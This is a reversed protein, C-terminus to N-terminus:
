YVSAGSIEVEKCDINCLLGKKIKDGPKISQSIIVGSGTVKYKLGLKALIKIGDRLNYNTLDPMQTTKIENLNESLTKIDSIKDGSNKHDGAFVVKLKSNNLPEVNSDHYIQPDTNVIRQAINKFIPAAVSGGYRGKEPSNVLVLCIVKPNEAPFFGIFSSNYDTKSYSGNILKQSTGTKGGVSVFDLKANVGTGNEVVGTLIKRMRESTASSIVTRIEKPSNEMVVTGDHRVERKIIEPQFLKGGNIIASYATILQIPTVAVEYGYSMFAKTIQTWDKPNKLTGRVEGPLNVSTYNGFGFARVYKYFLDNDIRQSLKAMGINSSEEIVGRATLWGHEHTDRITVNKFKYKGNEVFVKDSENVLGQDLLVSMSIGKFTSGPEYTDTVARDRREDDSYDWYKNPDYDNLNALSLIEGTNPDMIIGVASTGKYEKLGSKLEEELISQYTKNITLVINDGPVAPKTEEESVTIMDGVADREVLRTGNEGKLAKDFTREIGNVGEYENGVFGLVHSALEGYHYVRTPDERYFLGNIKFNTLLFAKEGPVKNEICITKGSQSMLKNYYEKSKGLVSSFKEAIKEKGKKSVMRLDLYFSYDNRNYVLLVNNRDYILGREADIKEVNTQQRQAYYKLEESKVIQVNVLKIVLATFVLLVLTIIVLARSNNM